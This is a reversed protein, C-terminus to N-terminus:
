SQGQNLSNYQEWNESHIFAQQAIDKNVYIIKNLLKIYAQIDKNPDNKMELATILDHYFNTNISKILELNKHIISVM